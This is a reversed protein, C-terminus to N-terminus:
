GLLVRSPWGPLLISELPVPPVPCCFGGVERLLILDIPDPEIHGSFGGTRAEDTQIAYVRITITVSAHCEKDLHSYVGYIM